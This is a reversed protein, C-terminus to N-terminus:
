YISRAADVSPALQTELKQDGPDATAAAIAPAVRGAPEIAPVVSTVAPSAAVPAAPESFPAAEPAISAAPAILVDGSPLAPRQWRYSDIAGCHPCVAQWHGSAPGAEAPHGCITCIWAPDPHASAAENLWRRAAAADQHEGDELAAMARATAHSLGGAEREAAALKELHRRAEGWLGAALAAMGLARHTEAHNPNQRQL